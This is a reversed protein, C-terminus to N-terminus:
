KETRNREDSIVRLLERRYRDYTSRLRPGPWDDPLLSSPLMPDRSLHRVIAAAVEFRLAAERSNAMTKILDEAADAWGPLDWLGALMETADSRLSDSRSEFRWAREAVSAPWERLLNDPRVWVGPRLEALRLGTLDAGLASRDTAAAVEPRAVAMEWQGRWRRTAPRLTEDQRRQRDALRASLRYYGAEAVVDGEAALRSLAVRTTGESVGFLDLTGVLTRVALQPPHSGLLVSLIVSRATLPQHDPLRPAAAPRDASAM